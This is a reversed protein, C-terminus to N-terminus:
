FSKAIVQSDTDIEFYFDGAISATYAAAVLRDRGNISWTFSPADNSTTGDVEGAKAIVVVERTGDSRKNVLLHYTATRKSGASYTSNSVHITILGGYTTQYGQTSRLACVERAAGASYNVNFLLTRSHIYNVYGGNATQWGNPLTCNDLTLYSGVGDVYVSPMTSGNTLVEHCDRLTVENKTSETSLLHCLSGWGDNNNNGNVAFAGQITVNINAGYTASAVAAFSARGNEEAGCSTMTFGKSNRILHGHNQNKDSAVASAHSYNMQGWEWGHNGNQLAYGGYVGTSTKQKAYSYNIGSDTNNNAFLNIHTNAFCNGFWMGDRGAQASNVSEILGRNAASLKIGNL